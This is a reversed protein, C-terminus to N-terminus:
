RMLQDIYILIESSNYINVIFIWFKSWNHFGTLVYDDETM